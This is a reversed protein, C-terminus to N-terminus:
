LVQMQHVSSLLTAETIQDDDTAAYIGGPYVDMMVPPQPLAATYTNHVRLAEMTIMM